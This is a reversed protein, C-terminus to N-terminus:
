NANGFFVDGKIKNLGQDVTANSTIQIAISDGTVLAVPPVLQFGQAGPSGYYVRSIGNKSVEVVAQSQAGNNDGPRPLYLQGNVFYSAQGPATFLSTKGLNVISQHGYFNLGAAVAVAGVLLLLTWKVYGNKTLKRM